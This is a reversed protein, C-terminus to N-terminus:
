SRLMCRPLCGVASPSLFWCLGLVKEWGRHQQSSSVFVGMGVGQAAPEGSFSVLSVVRQWDTPSQFGLRGLTEDKRGSASVVISEASMGTHTWSDRGPRAPGRVNSSVVQYLGVCLSPMEVVARVAAALAALDGDGDAAVPGLGPIRGVLLVHLCGPSVYLDASPRKKVM